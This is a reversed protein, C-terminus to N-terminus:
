GRLAAAAPHHVPRIPTPRDIPRVAAAAVLEPEPDGLVTRLELEEAVEHQYIRNFTLYGYLLTAVVTIAFVGAGIAFLLTQSM